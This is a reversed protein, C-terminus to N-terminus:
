QFISHYAGSPVLLGFFLVLIEIRLHMFWQITKHNKICVNIKNQKHYLHYEHHKTLTKPLKLKSKEKINFQHYAVLSYRHLVRTNKLNFLIPSIQGPEQIQSLQM